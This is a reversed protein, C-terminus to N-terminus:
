YLSNSNRRVMEATVTGRLTRFVFSTYALVVPLFLITCVLMIFLTKQSSSADWVTLSAVPAISSPLLFPFLSVGTTAIIGFLGVGSVVFGLGPRRLAAALAAALLGVVGLVPAAIMWPYRGYNALWAGPEQVVQKLLPNSPGLGDVASDIRYGPIALALWLGALLFLLMAALPAVMAVGRARAAVAGDTKLQAYLAGHGLLMALSVLGCLLGFPNLLEFLGSGDYFLRMDGDIRLPVGLFLNGCAVGFVLSPVVGGAFLAYDWFSRWRPDAIKNRFEFGVPRLILTILVLFLAPYFGSFAAAYIAPWAAFIAGGGLILWVQNGDWVPGITNILTRREIDSRAILPLSAAVGLDFGDMIAFGILLAGLLLWWIVRLTAYDILSEM